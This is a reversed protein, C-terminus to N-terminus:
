RTITLKLGAKGSEQVIVIIQSDPLLINKVWHVSENLTQHSELKSYSQLFLFSDTFKFFFSIFFSEICRSERFAQFAPRFHWGYGSVGAAQSKPFFLPFNYWRVEESLTKESVIYLPNIRNEIMKVKFSSFLKPKTFFFKKEWIPELIEKEELYHSWLYNQIVTWLGKWRFPNKVWIYDAREGWM